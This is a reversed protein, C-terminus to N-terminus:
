RRQETVVGVVGDVVALHPLDTHRDVRDDIRM